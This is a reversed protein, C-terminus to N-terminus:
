QTTTKPDAKSQTDGTGCNWGSGSLKEVLESAKTECFSTDNQATWLTTEKGAEETDKYYNVKCPLKTEGESFVVEVRRQSTGSTCTTARASIGWLCIFSTCLYFISHKM